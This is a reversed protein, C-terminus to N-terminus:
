LADTRHLSEILEEVEDASPCQRVEAKFWALEEAEVRHAQYVLLTGAVRAVTLLDYDLHSLLDIAEHYLQAATTKDLPYDLQLAVEQLSQQILDQPDDDRPTRTM